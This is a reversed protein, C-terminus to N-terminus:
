AAAQSAREQGETAAERRETATGTRRRFATSAERARWAGSRSASACNLRRRPPADRGSAKEKGGRRQAQARAEERGVPAEKCAAAMRRPTSASRKTRVASM